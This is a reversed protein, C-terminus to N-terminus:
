YDEPIIVIFLQDRSGMQQFVLVEINTFTFLIIHFIYISSIANLKFNFIQFKKPNAHFRSPSIPCKGM